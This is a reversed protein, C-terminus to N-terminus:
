QLKEKIDQITKYERSNEDDIIKVVGYKHLENEPAQSLMLSSIKNKEYLKKMKKLINIKPNNRILM